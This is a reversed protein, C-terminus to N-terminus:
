IGEKTKKEYNGMLLTVQNENDIDGQLFRWPKVIGDQKTSSIM